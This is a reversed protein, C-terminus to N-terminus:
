NADLVAYTDYVLPVRLLCGLINLMSSEWARNVFAFCACAFVCAHACLDRNNPKGHERRIASTM